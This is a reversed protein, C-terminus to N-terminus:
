SLVVVLVVLAVVLAVGIGGVAAILGTEQDRPVQETWGQEAAAQRVVERGESVRHHWQAAVGFTADDRLGIEMGRSSGLQRGSTAETSYSFRPVPVGGALGAGAQWQVDVTRDTISLAHRADDVRVQHVVATRLGNRYMLTTWRADVATLEVDFGYDTPRVQYPGGAVLQRVREALAAGPFPGPAHTM